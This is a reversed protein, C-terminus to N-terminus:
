CFKIEIFSSSYDEANIPFSLALHHSKLTIFYWDFYRQSKVILNEAMTRIVELYNHLLETNNGQLNLIKNKLEIVDRIHGRNRFAIWNLAEIYNENEPNYFRNFQLDYKYRSTMDSAILSVSLSLISLRSLLTQYFMFDFCDVRQVQLNLKLIEHDMSDFTAFISHYFEEEYDVIDYELIDLAMNMKGIDEIDFRSVSWNASFWKGKYVLDNYAEQSSDSHMFNVVYPVFGNLIDITNKTVILENDIYTYNSYDQDYFLCKMVRSRLNIFKISDIEFGNIKYDLNKTLNDYNNYNEFECSENSMHLYDSLSRYFSKNVNNNTNYLLECILGVHVLYQHLPRRTYPNVFGLTTNRFCNDRFNDYEYDFDSRAFVFNKINSTLILIILSLLWIKLNLTKFIM